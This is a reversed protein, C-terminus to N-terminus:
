VGEGGSITTDDSVVIFDIMSRHCLTDQHWMCKHVSKHKFMTNTISLTHSAFFDLLLVGSPNLDSLGSREIKGRWTGSDNGVHVSFVGLLIFSDGNLASKLLGVLSESFATLAQERVRLHLSTVTVRKDVPSFGLTCAGFQPAILLVM